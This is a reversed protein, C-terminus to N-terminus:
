GRNFRYWSATGTSYIYTVSTGGTSSTFTAPDLSTIQNVIPTAPASNTLGISSTSTLAITFLQGNTPATPFTVTFNTIAGSSNLFLISTTTAASVSGGETVSAAQSAQNCLLNALVLKVATTIATDSVSMSESGNADFSLTHATAASLGTTTNGTFNLSPTTSSGAPLQVSGTLSATITGASFNHSSDRAVIASATNASTSVVSSLVGSSDNSVVGATTFNNLKITGSSNISLATLQNTSLALSTASNVILADTTAASLGTPSSSGSFKLSANNISGAPLTVNASITGASFNGSTDRAVITSVTNTNTATTASNSVKGATSITALKTDAINANSVIDPNSILGSSLVGSSSSHVVGATGALSDLLVIGSSNINLAETGNTSLSLSHTAPFYLGTGTTTGDASYNLAPASVSGAPLALPGTMTDGAKLVNSSASGTVNGTLPGDFGAATITTSTSINSGTITNSAIDSGTVASSTLTGSSNSHVVGSSGGITIISVSRDSNITIAASGNTSLSLTNSNPSSIGVGSTGGVALSPNAGSGGPITLNGTLTGGTSALNGSATGTLSATITGASFNGSSDRAVITSATNDSTANSTISVTNASTTDTDVTLYSDGAITRFNMVVGDNDAYIEGDGSGINNGTTQSPLSFQVFTLDDTGIIADPTNCVWSSGAYTNGELILVYAMDATTGTEFDTPRTWAGSAVVWLGNNVANTQAILLITNGNVLTVGDVTPLGSLTTINSTAVVQAPDKPDLGLAAVTDVYQKNAADTLVTPAQLLTIKNASFGGSSNRQVIAGTTLNPTAALALLVGDTIQTATVEGVINVFNQSIPGIVDGNLQLTGSNAAKTAQAINSATQGGVSAVITNNATGRIDGFFEQQAWTNSPILLTLLLVIKTYYM